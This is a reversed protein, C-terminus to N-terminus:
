IVRHELAYLLYTQMKKAGGREPSLASWEWHPLPLLRWGLRTLQRRRVLTTGTPRRGAFRWPGDVQVVVDSGRWQIVLDLLYGEPLRVAERPML